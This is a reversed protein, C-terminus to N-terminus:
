IRWPVCGRGLCSVIECLYGSVDHYHQWGVMQLTWESKASKRERKQRKQDLVLYLVMREIQKVHKKVRGRDAVKTSDKKM